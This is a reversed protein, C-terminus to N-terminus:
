ELLLLLLVLQPGQRRRGLGLEPGHVCRYQLGGPDLADRLLVELLSLSHDAPHLLSDLLVEGTLNIDWLFPPFKNDM